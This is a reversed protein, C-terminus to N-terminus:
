GAEEFRKRLKLLRDKWVKELVDRAVEDDLIGAGSHVVRLRVEDGDMAIQLSVRTGKTPAKGSSDWAIEVDRTPRFVHFLGREEIVEDSDPQKHVLVVRGGNRPEVRAEDALWTALGEGTTMANWVSRLSTAINIQQRIAAM